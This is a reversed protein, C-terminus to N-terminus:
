RGLDSVTDRAIGAVKAIRRDPIKALRAAIVAARLAKRTSATHERATGLRDGARELGRRAREVERRQQATLTPPYIVGDRWHVGVKHSDSNGVVIRRTAPMKTERISSERAVNAITAASSRAIGISLAWQVQKHANRLAAAERRRADRWARAADRLRM